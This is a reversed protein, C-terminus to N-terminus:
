MQKHRPQFSFPFRSDPLPHPIMEPNIMKLQSFDDYFKKSFGSIYFSNWNGIIMRDNQTM